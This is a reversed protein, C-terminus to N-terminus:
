MVVCESLCAVADHFMIRARQTNNPHMPEFVVASGDGSTTAALLNTPSIDLSLVWCKHVGVIHQVDLSRRMDWVIIKGDHGASLLLRGHDFTSFVVDYVINNHGTFVQLTRGSDTNWIRITRDHSASAFTEGGPSFCCSLVHDTHGEYCVLERGTHPNWTKLTTDNSCSLLKDGATNFCLRNVDSFHGSKNQPAPDIKRVLCSSSSKGTYRKLQATVNWFRICGNRAASVLRSMDKNWVVTQVREEHGTFTSICLGWKLKNTEDEVNWIKITKDASCSVLYRVPAWRVQMVWGTHGKLPQHVRKGVCDMPDREPDHNGVMDWVVIQMDHGCTALREGNRSFECWYVANRHVKKDQLRYVPDLFSVNEAPVMAALRKAEAKDAKAKAKRAAAERKLQLDVQEELYAKKQKRSWNESGPPLEIPSFGSGGDGEKSEGDGDAAAYRSM